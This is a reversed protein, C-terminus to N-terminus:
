QNTHARDGLAKALPRGGRAGEGGDSVEDGDNLTVNISQKLENKTSAHM